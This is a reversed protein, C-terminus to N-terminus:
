PERMPRPASPNPQRPVRQRSTRAGSARRSSSGPACAARGVPPGDPALSASPAEGLAVRVAKRARNSTGACRVIPIRSVYRTLQAACSLARARARTGTPRRSKNYDNIDALFLNMETEGLCTEFVPRAQNIAYRVLESQTFRVRQAGGGDAGGRPVQHLLARRFALAREALGEDTQSSALWVSAITTKIDFQQGLIDDLPM